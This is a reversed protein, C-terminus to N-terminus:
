RAAAAGEWYPEAGYHAHIRTEWARDDWSAEDYEPADELMHETVTTAYRRKDLDYRLANWPVAHHGKRLCMFGCFNVIAYRARGSAPDIMFHDIEGIEKGSQDFVKAGVIHESSIMHLQPIATAM